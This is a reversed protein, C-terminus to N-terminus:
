IVTRLKEFKEFKAGFREVDSILCASGLNM